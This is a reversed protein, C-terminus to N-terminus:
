VYTYVKFSIIGRPTIISATFDMSYRVFLGTGLCSSFKEELHQDPSDLLSGLVIATAKQQRESTSPLDRNSFIGCAESVPSLSSQCLAEKRGSLRSEYYWFTSHLSGLPSVM